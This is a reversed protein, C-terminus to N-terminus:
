GEAECKPRSTSLVDVGVMFPGLMVVGGVLGGYWGQGDRRLALAADAQDGADDGARDDQEDDQQADDAGGEGAVLGGPLRRAHRRGGLEV